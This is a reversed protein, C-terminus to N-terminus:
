ITIVKYCKEQQPHEGNKKKVIEATELSAGEFCRENSSTTCSLKTQFTKCWPGSEFVPLFLESIAENSERL